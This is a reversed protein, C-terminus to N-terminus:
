SASAAPPSEDVVAQASGCWRCVVRNVTRSLIEEEDVALDGGLSYHEFRRVSTTVFVDFRTKNGCAECRYAM